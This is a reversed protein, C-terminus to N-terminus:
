IYDSQAALSSFLSIYECEKKVVNENQVNLHHKIILILLFFRALIYCVPSVKNFQKHMQVIGLWTKCDGRYSDEMHVTYCYM